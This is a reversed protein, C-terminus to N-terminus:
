PSILANSVDICEESIQTLIERASKFDADFDSAMIDTGRVFNGHSNVEAERLVGRPLSRALLLVDCTLTCGRHAAALTLHIAKAFQAAQKQIRSM